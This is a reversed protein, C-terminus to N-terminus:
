GDVSKRGFIDNLVGVLCSPRATSKATAFSKTVDQLTVYTRCNPEDNESRANERRAIQRTM